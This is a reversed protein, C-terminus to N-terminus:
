NLRPGNRGYVRKGTHRAKSCRPKFYLSIPVHKPYRRIPHHYYAMNCRHWNMVQSLSWKWEHQLITATASRDSEQKLNQIHGHVTRLLWFEYMATQQGCGHQVQMVSQFKDSPFLNNGLGQRVQQLVLVPIQHFKPCTLVHLHNDKSFM